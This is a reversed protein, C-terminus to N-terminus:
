KEKRNIIFLIVCLSVGLLVFSLFQSPLVLTILNVIYNIYRAFILYVVIAIAILILEGM